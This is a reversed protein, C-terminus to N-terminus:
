KEPPHVSDLLAKIVPDGLLSETDYEEKAPTSISIQGWTGTVGTLGDFVYVLEHCKVSNVSRKIRYGQAAGISCEEVPYGRAACDEAYEKASTAKVDFTGERMSVFMLDLQIDPEKLFGTITFMYEDDGTLTFMQRIASGETDVNWMRVSGSSNDSVLRAPVDIAFVAFEKGVDCSVAGNDDPTEGPAPLSDPTQEPTAAAAPPTPPAAIESSGPSCGALVTPILTLMLLISIIRHKTTKM